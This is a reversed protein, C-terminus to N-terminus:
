VKVKNFLSSGLLVMIIGFVSLIGLSLSLPFQTFGILSSRLGDVGYTLPDLYAM